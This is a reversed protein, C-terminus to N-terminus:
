CSLQQWSGVRARTRIRARTDADAYNSERFGTLREFWDM